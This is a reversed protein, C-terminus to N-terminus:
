LSRPTTTREWEADDDRFFHPPVRVKHTRLDPEWWVPWELKGPTLTFSVVLKQEQRSLQADGLNELALAVVGPNLAVRQASHGPCIVKGLGLKVVVEELNPGGPGAGRGIFTIITKYDLRAAAEELKRDAELLLSTLRPDNTSLARDRAFRIIAERRTMRRLGKGVPYKVLEDLAPTRMKTRKNRSGKPRGKPKHGKKFRHEVPPPSKSAM